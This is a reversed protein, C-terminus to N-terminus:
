GTRWNFLVLQLSGGVLQVLVQPLHLRKPVLRSAGLWWGRGLYVKLVHQPRKFQLLVQVLLALLFVLHVHERSLLIVLICTSHPAYAFPKALPLDQPLQLLLEFLLNLLHFIAANVIHKLLVVLCALLVVPSLNEFLEVEVVSGM